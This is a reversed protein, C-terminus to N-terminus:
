KRKRKGRRKIEPVISEGNAVLIRRVLKRESRNMWRTNKRYYGVHVHGLEGRGVGEHSTNVDIFKKAMGLRDTYTISKVKGDRGIVAYVRYPMMSEYPTKGKGTASEVFLVRKDRIKFNKGKSNKKVQRFETGYKSLRALSSTAGRGGM